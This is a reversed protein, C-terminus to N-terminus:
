ILKDLKISIKNFEIIIYKFPREVSNTTVPLLITKIAYM